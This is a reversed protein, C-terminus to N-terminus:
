MLYLGCLETSQINTKLSIFVFFIKFTLPDAYNWIPSIGATRLVCGILIPWCKKLLEPSCVIRIMLLYVLYVYRNCYRRYYQSTFVAHKRGQFPSLDYFIHM